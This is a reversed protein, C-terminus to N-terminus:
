AYLQKTHMWETWNYIKLKVLQRDKVILIWWETKLQKIARMSHDKVFNDLNVRKYSPLKM